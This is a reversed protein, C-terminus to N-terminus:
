SREDMWAISSLDGKMATLLAEVMENTRRKGEAGFTAEVCKALRGPLDADTVSGELRHVEGGSKRIQAAAEELPERDRDTLLLRAGEAAFLEAAARGIGRGAGTIVATKGELWGSSM